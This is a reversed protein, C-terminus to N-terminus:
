ENQEAQGAENELEYAASFAAQDTDVKIEEWKLSLILTRLLIASVCVAGHLALLAAMAAPNKGFGNIMLYVANSVGSIISAIFAALARLPLRAPAAKFVYDRLESGNLLMRVSSWVTLFVCILELVFFPVVYWNGFGLMSDAPVFGCAAAAAAMVGAYIGIRLKVKNYPLPATCRHVLGRYSYQGDSGVKFDNLYARRGARKKKGESNAM